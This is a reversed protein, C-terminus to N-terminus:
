RRLSEAHSIVVDASVGENKRTTFVARAGSALTPASAWACRAKARRAAKGIPQRTMNCVAKWADSVPGTSHRIDGQVARKFKGLAEENELWITAQQRFLHGGHGFM